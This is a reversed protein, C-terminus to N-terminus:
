VGVGWPGTVTVTTPPFSGTSDVTEIYDTSDDTVNVAAGLQVDLVSVLIWRGEAVRDLTQSDGAQVVAIGAASLATLVTLKSLSARLASMKARPSASWFATSTTPLSPPLAHLQISVTFVRQGCVSPDLRGTDENLTFRQEDQGLQREAIVNLVCFPYTSRPANQDAWRVTVGPLETTIWAVIADAITAWEM